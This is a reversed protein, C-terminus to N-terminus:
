SRDVLTIRAKLQRLAQGYAKLKQERRLADEKTPYAEYYVLKWPIGPKTAINQGANHSYFRKRVDPSTGVYYEKSRNSYLLYLYYM